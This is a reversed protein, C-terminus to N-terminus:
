EALQTRQWKGMAQACKVNEGVLRTELRNLVNEVGKMYIEKRIAVGGYVRQIVDKFM